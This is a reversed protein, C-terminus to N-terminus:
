YDYKGKILNYKVRVLDSLTQMAVKKPNSLKGKGDMAHSPMDRWHVPVECIEYGLRKAITLIEMDFGWGTLSQRSFLHNAADKSFLKFGCQTDRVKPLLLLQILLNGFRSIVRRLFSQKEDIYGKKLYRSGILVEKGKKVEVLLDDIHCLPTALDADFFLRYEGKALNLMAYKVDHGKGMRKTTKFFRLQPYVLMKDKVIKETDDPSCSDIIIVEYGFDKNKLFDFILDINVKLRDAEKYCPVIISLFPKM